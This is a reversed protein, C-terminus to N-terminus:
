PDYPVFAAIAVRALEGDDIAEQVTPALFPHAPFEGDVPLRKHHWATERGTDKWKMTKGGSPQLVCGGFELLSAHRASNGVYATARLGQSAAAPTWYMGKALSGSAYAPPDGPRARYFAGPAHRNRQLMDNAVRDAIYEAMANAAAAAGYDVRAIAAELWAIYEELPTAV